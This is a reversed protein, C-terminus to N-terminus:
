IAHLYSPNLGFCSNPSIRRTPQKSQMAIMAATIQLIGAIVLVFVKTKM